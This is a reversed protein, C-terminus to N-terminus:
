SPLGALGLASLPPSAPAPSAPGDLDQGRLWEIRARAAATAADAVHDDEGTFEYRCSWCWRQGPEGWERCRPCRRHVLAFELQEVEFAIAAAREARRQNQSHYEPLARDGIATGGAAAARRQLHRLTRRVAGRGLLMLPDGASHERGVTVAPPYFGIVSRTLRTRARRHHWTQHYPQPQAGATLWGREALAGDVVALVDALERDPFRLHLYSRVKAALVM